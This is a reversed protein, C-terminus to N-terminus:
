ELVSHFCVVRPEGFEYAADVCVFADNIGQQKLRLFPRLMSRDLRGRLRRVGAASNTRSDFEFVGGVRFGKGVRRSM